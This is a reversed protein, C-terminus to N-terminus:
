HAGFEFSPKGHLVTGSVRLIQGAAWHGAHVSQEVSFGQALSALFGGVFAAARVRTLRRRWPARARVCWRRRRQCRRDGRRSDGARPDRDGARATHADGGGHAHARACPPPTGAGRVQQGVCVVTSHSGQTIIAYRPRKGNVKPLNALQLAVARPSCDEYGMKKGFAEAESENGFIFDAYPLTALLPESFFMSIFPASLNMMYVACFVRVFVCTLERELVTAVRSDWLLRPRAPAGKNTEACHQGLHLATPPSVTLFFGASYIFQAKHWIPAIEASLMHEKKYKNAAGLNAVLSRGGCAGNVAGACLARAVPVRVGSM